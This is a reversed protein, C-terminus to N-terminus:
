EGIAKSGNNDDFRAGVIVDVFGDGNVDGAGSVSAGFRDGFDGNFAYLVSGDFGSLM